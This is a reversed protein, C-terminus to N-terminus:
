NSPALQVREGPLEGGIAALVIEYGWEERQPDRWLKKPLRVVTPSISLIPTAGLLSADARHVRMTAAPALQRRVTDPAWALIRHPQPDVLTLLTHGAHVWEGTAVALSAVVGRMPARVDLAQADLAIRERQAEQEKIRWRLPALAEDPSAAGARSENDALDRALDARLRELECDAQALRLRVDRDDFRVVVTDAEVTDHLQVAVNAVRGGAPAALTCDRADVLGHLRPAPLKAAHLAFLGWVAVLWVLLPLAHQARSRTRALM